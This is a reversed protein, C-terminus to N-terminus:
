QYNLRPAIGPLPRDGATPTRRRIIVSLYVTLTTLHGLVLGDSLARTERLTYAATMGAPQAAYYEAVGAPGVTYPHLGQFIADATFLGAVDEPQHADVAAKWRSLVADLM